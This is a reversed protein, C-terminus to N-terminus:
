KNVEQAAANVVSNYEVVTLGVMGAPAQSSYGDELRQAYPLNNVIYHVTAPDSNAVGTQIRDKSVQGTKDIDPLDSQPIGAGALNGYQWNARFRGGVYGKGIWGLSTAVAKFKTDWLEPDGVPSKEVLRSGMDIVIKRTVQGMNANAKEVFKKVDLSFSM